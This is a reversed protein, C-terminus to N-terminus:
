GYNRLTRVTIKDLRYLGPLDRVQFIITCAILRLQHLLVDEPVEKFTTDTQPFNIKSTLLQQLYQFLQPVKLFLDLHQLNFLPQPRVSHPIANTAHSVADLFAKIHLYSSPEKKLLTKLLRM